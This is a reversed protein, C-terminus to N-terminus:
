GFMQIESNFKRNRFAECCIIVLVNFVANKVNKLMSKKWKKLSCVCFICHITLFQSGQFTRIITSVGCPTCRLNGLFGSFVGSFHSFVSFFLQFHSYLFILSYQGLCEASAAKYWIQDFNAAKQPRYARHCLVPHRGSSFVPKKRSFVSLFHSNEFFLFTLRPVQWLKNTDLKPIFGDM